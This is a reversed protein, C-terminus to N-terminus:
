SVRGVAQLLSEPTTNNIGVVNMFCQHKYAGNCMSYTSAIQQLESNDVALWGISGYSMSPM